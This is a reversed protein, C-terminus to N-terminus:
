NKSNDLFSTEQQTDMADSAMHSDLWQEVKDSLQGSALQFVQDSGMVVSDSIQDQWRNDLKCSVLHNASQPNSVFYERCFNGQDDTFSMTLYIQQDNGIELTQGSTHTDLVSTLTPLAEQVMNNYIPVALAVVLFSAAIPMWKVRHWSKIEVVNNDSSSQIEEPEELLSMISDPVPTDDIASYHQRIATDNDNFQAFRIALTDDEQLRKEFKAREIDNLEGDLYASICQEDPMNM